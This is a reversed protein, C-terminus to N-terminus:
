ASELLAKLNRLYRSVTSSYYLEVFRSPVPIGIADEVMDKEFALEYTVSTLNDNIRQCTRTCRLWYMHGPPTEQETRYPRDLVNIRTATTFDKRGGVRSKEVQLTGVAIDGQVDVSEVEDRWQPDNASNAIFDFVTEIPARILRTQNVVIQGKAV